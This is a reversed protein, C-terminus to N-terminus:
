RERGRGAVPLWYSAMHPRPRLRLRDRGALRLVLGIPTLVAFFLVAMAVPQLGIILRHATPLGDNAQSGAEVPPVLGAAADGGNM